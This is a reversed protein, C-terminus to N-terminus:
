VLVTLFQIGRVLTLYVYTTWALFSALPSLNGYSKQMVFALRDGTVVAAVALPQFILLLHVFFRSPQIMLM